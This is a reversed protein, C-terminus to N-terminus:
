HIDTNKVARFVRVAQEVHLQLMAKSISDNVGHPAAGSYMNPYRTTWDNSIMVGLSTMYDTRHNNIGCEADYKEPAVLEPRYSYVMATELFNAHGGQYGTVEWRKMIEIDEETIYPFDEKRETVTRIFPGPQAPEGLVGCTCYTTYPKEKREQDKVFEDCDFISGGHINYLLIKDFGSRAINDCLEELVRQMTKLNLAFGGHCKDGCKNSRFQAVDGLWFGTPFVVVDELEAAGYVIAEAFFYDTGVPLHQGHKELCGMPIVCLGKSKEIAAAFEEERLEEWRM